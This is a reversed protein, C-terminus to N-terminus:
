LPNEAWEPSNWISKSPRMTGDFPGTVRSPGVLKVKWAGLRDLLLHHFAPLQQRGETKHLSAFLHWM